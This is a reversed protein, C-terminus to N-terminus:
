KYFYIFECLQKNELFPIPALISLYRDLSIWNMNGRYLDEQIVLGGGTHIVSKQFIKYRGQDGDAFGTLSFAM